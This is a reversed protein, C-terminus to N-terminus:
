SCEGHQEERKHGQLKQLSLPLLRCLDLAATKERRRGDLTVALVEGCLRYQSFRTTLSRCRCEIRVSPVGVSPYGKPTSFGPPLLAMGSIFANWPRERSSGVSLPWLVEEDPLEIAFPRGVRLLGRSVAKAHLWVTLEDTSGCVVGIWGIPFAQREGDDAALIILASPVPLFSLSQPFVSKPM